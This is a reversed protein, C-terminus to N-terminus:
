PASRNGRNRWEATGSFDCGLMILAATLSTTTHKNVDNTLKLMDTAQIVGEDNALRYARLVDSRKATGLVLGLDRLIENATTM